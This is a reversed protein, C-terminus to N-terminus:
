FTGADIDIRNDLDIDLKDKFDSPLTYTEGNQDLISAAASLVEDPNKFTYKRTNSDYMLVYKDSKNTTDVDILNALSIKGFVPIVKIRNEPGLRVKIDAM